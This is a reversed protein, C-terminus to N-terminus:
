ETAADRDAGTFLVVDVGSGNFKEGSKALHLLGALGSVGTHCVELPPAGADTVGAPGLAAAERITDDSVVVPQGGSELVGDCIALWDYTEDDLIGHATSQPHDWPWMFESRRAAALTIAAARAADGPTHDGGLLERVIKQYARNLPANGEAQVPFIQPLRPLAGTLVATRLGQVIGSCLAGGGVQVFLRDIEIGAREVHAEAAGGDRDRNGTERALETVLEWALTQAGEVAMGNESGQVSFPIAQHDKVMNRCAIVTPDGAGTCSVPGLPTEVESEGRKCIHVDAGVERLREIIAPSADPPIFVSIDFGGAKATIAAALGANGCSAVALRKGRVSGAAPANIAELVKLYIMVGILHRSKHSQAVSRTENKAFARLGEPGSWHLLPTEKIGTKDLRQLEADLDEVLKVYSEDDMGGDRAIRYAYLFDRYRIFPNPHSESDNQAIGDILVSRLARSTNPTPVLVHDVGPQSAAEPCSMALMQSGLVQTGCGSCTLPGAEGSCLCPDPVCRNFFFVM